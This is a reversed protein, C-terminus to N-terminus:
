NLMTQDFGPPLPEGVAEEVKFGYQPDLLMLALVVPNMGIKQGWHHMAFEVAQAEDKAPGLCSKTEGDVEISVKYMKAM